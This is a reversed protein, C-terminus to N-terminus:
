VMKTPWNMWEWHLTYLRGKEIFLDQSVNIEDLFSDWKSTWHLIILLHTPNHVVCGCDCIYIYVRMSLYISLYISLSLYWTYVYYIYIYICVCTSRFGSKWDDVSLKIWRPTCNPDTIPVVMAIVLCFPIYGKYIHSCTDWLRSYGVSIHIYTYISGRCIDGCINM